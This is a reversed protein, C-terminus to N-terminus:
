NTDADSQRTFRANGWVAHDFSPEALSDVSLSLYSAEKLPIDVLLPPSLPSIPGSRYATVGDLIVSFEQQVKGEVPKAGIGYGVEAKFRAYGAPVPFTLRANAHMGIGRDYSQHVSDLRGQGDFYRDPSWAGYDLLSWISWTRCVDSLMIESHSLRHSETLAAKFTVNELKVYSSSACEERQSARIELDRAVAARPLIIEFAPNSATSDDVEHLSAFVSHEMAFSLTPACNERAVQNNENTHSYSFSLVDLCAPIRLTYTADNNSLEITSTNSATLDRLKVTTSSFRQASGLHLLWAFAGMIIWLGYRNVTLLTRNFFHSASYDCVTPRRSPAGVALLCCLFSAAGLFAMLQRASEGAGFLTTTLFLLTVSAAGVGAFPSSPLAAVLFAIAPLGYRERIQTPTFFFAWAILGLVFLQHSPKRPRSFASGVCYTFIIGFLLLSFNRVSLSVYWTSILPTSDFIFYPSALEWFNIASYRLPGHPSINGLYALTFVGLFSSSGLSFPIIVVLISGLFVFPMAIRQWSTRALQMAFLLVAMSITIAQFKLSVALASLVVAQLPKHANLKLFGWLILLPVMGDTQGWIATDCIVAPNLWYCILVILAKEFRQGMDLVRYILVTVLADSLIFPLRISLPGWGALVLPEFTARYWGVAYFLLASLPPYNSNTRAYFESLGAQYGLDAWNLFQTLDAAYGDSQAFLIRLYLGVAFLTIVVVINSVKQPVM